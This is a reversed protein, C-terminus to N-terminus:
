LDSFMDQTCLKSIEKDFYDQRMGELMYNHKLFDKSSMQNCPYSKFGDDYLKIVQSDDEVMLVGEAHPLGWVSSNLTKMSPEVELEKVFTKVDEDIARM